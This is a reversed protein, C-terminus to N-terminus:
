RGFRGPRDPHDGERELTDLLSDATYSSSVTRAGAQGSGASPAGISQREALLRNAMDYDANLNGRDM